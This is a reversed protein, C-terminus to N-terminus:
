TKSKKKVISGNLNNVPPGSSKRKISNNLNNAPPKKKKIMGTLNNVNSPAPKNTQVKSGKVTIFPESTFKKLSVPIQDQVLSIIDDKISFDEGKIITMLNKYALFPIVLQDLPDTKALSVNSNIQCGIIGVVNGLRFEQRFGLEEWFQNTKISKYRNEVVLHELFRGKPDDPFVPIQNIALQDLNSFLSGVEWNDSNKLNTLYKQTSKLDSGPIIIKNAWDSGSIKDILGIWWTFLKDGDVLHKNPNKHSVPFLYENAARTFLSLRTSTSFTHQNDIPFPLDANQSTAGGSSSYFPISQYYSADTRLNDIIKHLKKITENEFNLQSKSESEKREQRLQVNTFYVSPNLEVLYKVFQSVLDAVRISDRTFGTTDAKSVFIHHDVHNRSDFFTLYVYVEIGFVILKTTKDILVLLHKVKLTRSPKDKKPYILLHKCEYPNTQVHLVDYEENM